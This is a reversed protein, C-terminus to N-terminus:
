MISCIAKGKSPVALTAARRPSQQATMAAPRNWFCFIAPPGIPEGDSDVNDGFSDNNARRRVESRSDSRRSTRSGGRIVVEEEIPMLSTSKDRRVSEHLHGDDDISSGSSSRRTRRHGSRSGKTSGSRLSREDDDCKYQINSVSIERSTSRKKKSSRHMKSSGSTDNSLVSASLSTEDSKEERKSLRQKIGDKSIPQQQRMLLIAAKTVDGGCAQMAQTVAEIAATTAVTSMESVSARREKRNTKSNKSTRSVKSTVGISTVSAGSNATMTHFLSPQSQSRIVDIENNQCARQEEIPTFPEEVTPENHPSKRHQDSTDENVAKSVSASRSLAVM